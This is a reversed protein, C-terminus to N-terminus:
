GFWKPTSIENKDHHLFTKNFYGQNLMLMAANGINFSHL